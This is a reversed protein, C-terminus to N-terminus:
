TSNIKCLQEGGFIQLAGRWNDTINLGKESVEGKVVESVWTDRVARVTSDTVKPLKECQKDTM